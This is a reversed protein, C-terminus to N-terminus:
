NFKDLIENYSELTGIDRYLKNTRYTFIKGIYKPIIHNSFDNTNELNENKLLKLFEKSLIYVAANALNSPPNSIKEFFNVLINDKNLEVIGSHKPKDTLFTLMTLLCQKPRNRHAKLFKLLSDECYNDVHVLLCEDNLFLDLNHLLTGATGLLKKEYIIQISNKFQSNKVFDAVQDHLYHTNVIFEDVGIKNLKRIWIELLSVDNIKILCKPTNITLPRLRKGYGASLLLAKM